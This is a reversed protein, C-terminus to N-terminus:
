NLSAAGRLAQVAQRQRPRHYEDVPARDLSLVVPSTGPQPTVRYLFSADDYGWLVDVTGNASDGATIQVRICQNEAGLYGGTSSPECVNPQETDPLWTVKLRSLSRLEMTEPERALGNKM